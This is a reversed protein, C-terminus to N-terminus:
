ADEHAETVPAVTIGAASIAPPLRATAPLEAITRELRNLRLELDSVRGRLRGIVDILSEQPQDARGSQHRRRRRWVLYLGLALLPWFLYWIVAVLLELAAMATEPAWLLKRV